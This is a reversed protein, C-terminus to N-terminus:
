GIIQLSSYAYVKLTDRSEPLMTKVCIPSM